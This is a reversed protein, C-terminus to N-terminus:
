FQEVADFHRLSRKKRNLEVGGSKTPIVNYRSLSIVVCLAAFRYSRYRCILFFNSKRFDRM